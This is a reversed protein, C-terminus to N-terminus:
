FASLGPWSEMLKQLADKAVLPNSSKMQIRLYSLKLLELANDLGNEEARVTTWGSKPLWRHREARGSRVLVDRINVSFPIAAIEDADRTLAAQLLIHSAKSL